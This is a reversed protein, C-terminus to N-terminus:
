ALEILVPVHDSPKERGRVQKDIRYSRLRDAAQPSLLYHDIRIGNDKQWAGAQYDWFSYLGAQGPALERVADTFGLNVLERFKARTKPLFLADNGWAEPRKADLAMPIVNYDGTLVLPEELKLLKERDAIAQKAEPHTATLKGLEAEQEAMKATLAPQSGAARAKDAPLAQPDDLSKKSASLAKRTKVRAAALEKLGPVAEYAEKLRPAVDKNLQDNLAVAEKRLPALTQQEAALDPLGPAISKPTLQLAGFAVGYACASLAATVLTV